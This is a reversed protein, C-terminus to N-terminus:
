REVLPNRQLVFAQGDSLQNNVTGDRFTQIAFYMMNREDGRTTDALTDGGGFPACGEFEGPSCPRGNETSHFLGLYHGAEHAIVQGLNRTNGVVDPDFAVLVGSTLSAHEGPPGPIGGAVGLTIGRGGGGEISRVFFVDLVNGTGPTGRAFLQAMESNPGETTDIITFNSGPVDAYGDISVTVGGAAYTDAMSAIAAQLRGNSPASAATVGIGAALHVRLRLTRGSGTAFRAVLSVNGDVTEGTESSFASYSVRHRGSRFPVRDPTTNPVLMAAAQHSNLPVWRILPDEFRAITDLDFIVQDTPDILEVFTLPLETGDTQRLLLVMSTAARPAAFVAQNPFAGSALRGSRLELEGTALGPVDYCIRATASDWPVDQCSQGPICDSDDDCAIVCQSQFCVRSDCSPTGGESGACTGGAFRGSNSPVCLSDVRDVSGDGDDDSPVPACSAGTSCAGLDTCRPACGGGYEAGVCVGDCEDECTPPPGMDPTALCSGGTCTGGPCQADTTCEVGMCEGEVCRGGEGCAADATCDPQCAGRWCDWGERCEDDAECTALCIAIGLRSDCVGGVGCESDACAETCINGPVGEVCSLTPCSDTCADGYEPVTSSEGCGVFALAAFTLLLHSSPRLNNVPLPTCYVRAISRREVMSTIRRCGPHPLGTRHALNGVPFVLEQPLDCGSAHRFDEERALPALAAEEPVHDDLAQERVEGLVFARQPHKLVFRAQQGVQVVGVDGLDGVEPEGFAGPVDGHLVHGSPGYRIDPPGPRPAALHHRQRDGDAQHHLDALREVVRVGRAIAGAAPEADDM